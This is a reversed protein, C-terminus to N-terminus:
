HNQEQDTGLPAKTATNPYGGLDILGTQLLSKYVTQRGASPPSGTGRPAQLHKVRLEGVGGASGRQLLPSHQQPV